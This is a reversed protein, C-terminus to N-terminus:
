QEGEDKKKSKKHDKKEEKLHAPKEQDRLTDHIEKRKKDDIFEKKKQQANKKEKFNKDVIKSMDNLLQFGKPTVKRGKPKARELYGLKELSQVCTRIVKGSAKFTHEKKLGRNRRGGYYSRLRETGIVGWRYTRYLISAMRVFFWDERQPARERHVGTKIYDVFKPAEMETKLKQATEEILYSAPVDYVGMKSVM